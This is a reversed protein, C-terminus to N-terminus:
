LALLVQTLINEDRSAAYNGLSGHSNLLDLHGLDVGDFLM